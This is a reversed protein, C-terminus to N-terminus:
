EPQNLISFFLKVLAPDFHKESQDIIYGVAQEVSWAPRYPRDHTLADYVDIISFIRAALPIQEGRLGEPYGSGDWKEHHYYPIDIIPRLYPIDMLMTRAFATHQQMIEWEEATLAAPKLLIQDPVGMKGIDHMLAGRQVTLLEEGEIGCAASMRTTLEVVRRSHDATERERLELARAWGQLTADYAAELHAHAERLEQEAAIRGSIDRTISLICSEGQLHIVRASMLGAIVEGNKRRFPAELNEVEGYQRLGQVLRARDEPNVWISLELSSKGLVEERTYGTLRTFGDNIDIYMGDNLRNINISDPSILFATAFKEESLKLAETIRLRESIDNFLVVLQGPASRFAFVEYFGRAKPTSYEFKETYWTEGGRAIERYREPIESDNLKPFVEEITKGFWQAHEASLITDAAPNAGQLILRQADDLTYMHVGLPLADIIAQFKHESSQNAFEAQKRLAIEQELKQNSKDYAILIACFRSHSYWELLAIGLICILLGAITQAATLLGTGFGIVLVLAAVPAFWPMSQHLKKWNMLTIGPLTKSGGAQGPIMPPM